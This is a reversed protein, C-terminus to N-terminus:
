PGLDKSPGKAALVGQSSCKRQQYTGNVTSRHFYLSPAVSHLETPGTFLQLQALTCLEHAFNAFNACLD